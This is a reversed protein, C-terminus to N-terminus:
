NIHTSWGLSLRKSLQAKFGKLKYINQCGQILIRHLNQEESLWKHYLGGPLFQANADDAAFWVQLEAAWIDFKTQTLEKPPLQNLPLVKATPM